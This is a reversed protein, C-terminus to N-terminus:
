FDYYNEITKILDHYKQKNKKLLSFYFTVHALDDSFPIVIRGKTKGERKISLNTTFSPLTSSKVIKLFANREDQLIFQTNPMTKLHLNYWFGINSYVLMTEGAMDKFSIEKKDHYPHTPPISLYLDEELYPICIVDKHSIENPTIIFQFKDNLLENLLLDDDMIKSNVEVQPYLSVIIPEIDWLPAPTGSGVNITSFSKDQEQVEEIMTNINDIIKRAHEVVLLGNKNISIKNKKHDFLEVNLDAELRQMSRSLASQSIHLKTSAETITNNEAICILQKLQNIEIMNSGGSHMELIAYKGIPM